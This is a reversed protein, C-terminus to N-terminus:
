RTKFSRVRVGLGNECCYGAVRCIRLEPVLTISSCSKLPDNDEVIESERCSVASRALVNRIFLKGM